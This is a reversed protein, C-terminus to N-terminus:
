ITAGGSVLQTFRFLNKFVQFFIEAEEDSFPSLLAPMEPNNHSNFLIIHKACTRPISFSSLFQLNSHLSVQCIDTVKRGEKGRKLEGQRFEISEKLGM